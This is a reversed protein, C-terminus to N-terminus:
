EKLKLFKSILNRNVIYSYIFIGILSIVNIIKINIYYTIMIVGFAFITMVFVRMKVRISMYKKIDIIRYVALFAYAIVTSISAAYIGLQKILLINIILNIVASLFSTKAISKSQKKAVYVVSYVGVLMNFFSGLMLIPIQNYADSYQSNVFYPFVFPMVAVIGLAISSFFRISLDIIETFYEESNKDNIHITAQETWSMSFFNFMTIYLTSFKCAVAYIGNIAVSLIVSIILRDSVSFIWWSVQNPILPLSYSIMQGYKKLSICRIKLYIHLKMAYTVYLCSVINAILGSMLMGRAGMHFIVIFVINLIINILSMIFNSLSYILNYGLGRAIQTLVYSFMCSLLNFLLFYKYENKIFHGLYFMFLIYLLSQVIMFFITTSILKQKEIENDRIEILFRFVAQELQLSIIPLLLQILVNLIDVVGYDGASLYATYVPLLFFSVIQTSIKGIAIIGTNKLLDNKYIKKIAQNDM